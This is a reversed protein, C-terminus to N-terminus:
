RGASVELARMRTYIRDVDQERARKAEEAMQRFANAARRGADGHHEYFTERYHARREAWREPSALLEELRPRLEEASMVRPGADRYKVEVDESPAVGPKDLLLVPVDMACAEFTVGSYDTIIADAAALVHIGAEEPEIWRARPLTGAFRQLETMYTVPHLQGVFEVDLDLENLAQAYTEHACLGGFTPAYLVITRDPDLGLRERAKAKTLTGDFWPDLKPYGVVQTRVGHQRLLNAGFQSAVLVCDYSGNMASYTYKKSIVAYLLRVQKSWRQGVVRQEIAHTAFVHPEIEWAGTVAEVGRARLWDLTQQQQRAHVQPDQPLHSYWPSVYIAAEGPEFHKLVPEWNRYYWPHQVCFYMSM